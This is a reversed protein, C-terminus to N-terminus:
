FLQSIAGSNGDMNPTLQRNQAQKTQIEKTTALIKEIRIAISPHTRHGELAIAPPDEAAWRQWFDIIEEPDYGARATFYSAVYDALFESQENSGKSHLTIHALEHGLIWALQDDNKLFRVMGTTIYVRLNDIESASIANVALLKIPHRCIPQPHVTVSSQAGEQDQVTLQVREKKELIPLLIDQVWADMNDASKTPIHNGDAAIIQDGDKLGAKAAAGKPHLYIIQPTSGIGYLRQYGDHFPKAYLENYGLGVGLSGKVRSDCFQANALTLRLWVETIRKQREHQLSVAREQLNGLTKKAIVIPVEPPTPRTICGTLILTCVAVICIYSKSKIKNM